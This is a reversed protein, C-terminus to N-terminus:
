RPTASEDDGPRPLRALLAKVEEITEPDDESALLHRLATRVIEVESRALKLDVPRVVTENPM